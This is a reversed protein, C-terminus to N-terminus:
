EIIRSRERINRNMNIDSDDTMIDDRNEECRQIIKSWKRVSKDDVYCYYRKM